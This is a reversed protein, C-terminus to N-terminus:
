KFVTYIRTKYCSDNVNMIGRKHVLLSTFTLILCIAKDVSLKVLSCFGLESLIAKKFTQEKRINYLLIYQFIIFFLNQLCLFIKKLNILCFVLVIKM